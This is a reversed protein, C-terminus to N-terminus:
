SASTGPMDEPRSKSRAAEGLPTGKDPTANVPDPLRWYTRWGHNQVIAARPIQWSIMAFGVIDGCACAGNVISLAAWSAHRQQLAICVVLPLVTLVLFPVAFIVLFRDRSLPGLHAAYCLLRSPWVGIRTQPTLGFGPMAVAHLLEHVVILAIFAVVPILFGIAVPWGSAGGGLSLVVGTSRDGTLGTWAGILAAATTIAIPIAILQLGVPTPERLSNWGEEDPAFGPVLPPSGFHLQM